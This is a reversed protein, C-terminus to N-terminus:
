QLQVSGTLGTAPPPGVSATSYAGVTWAGSSPRPQGAKDSNLPTIGWSTLNAGLGIAPSGTLLMFTSDLMPNTTVSAADCGCNSRWSALSSDWNSQFIWQPSAAGYYINDNAAISSGQQYVYTGCGVLVNNEITWGTGYIHICNYADNGTGGTDSITNNVIFGKDQMPAILGSSTPVNANTKSFVNNFIYAPAMSGGSGGNDNELFIMSTSHAGIDGVVYNNYIWIDGALNAGPLNTFLHVFNHHYDNGADDWNVWDTATNDHIYLNSFTGAPYFGFQIDQNSHAFSNGQITWNSGNSNWDGMICVDCYTFTNNPGVTVNSEGSLYLGWAGDGNADNLVHQYVNLFSLNKVTFDSGFGGVLTSAQKDALNTGNATNQIIGNTGGDIVVWQAGSGNIGYNSNSFYPSQLVAGTEFKLTLPNGNTGSGQFTLATANAAVSITGCIHVTTGPGIQTGSTTGSTWNGSANFYTYAYANACSSGNASGSNSQAIYVDNAKATVSFMALLASILAIRKVLASALIIAAVFAFLSIAKKM